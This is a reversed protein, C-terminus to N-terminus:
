LFYAVICAAYRTPVGSGWSSLWQSSWCLVDQRWDSSCSCSWSCSCVKGMLKADEDAFKKAWRLVGAFIFHQLQFYLSKLECICGLYQLDRVHITVNNQNDEATSLVTCYVLWSGLLALCSWIVRSMHVAGLPPIEGCVQFLPQSRRQESVCMGQPSSTSPFIQQKLELRVQDTQSIEISTCRHLRVVNYTHVVYINRHHVVQTDWVVVVVFDKNPFPIIDTNLSLDPYATFYTGSGEHYGEPESVYKVTYGEERGLVSVTNAWNLLCYEDRKLLQYHEMNLKKHFTQLHTMRSFQWMVKFTPLYCRMWKWKIVPCHLYLGIMQESHCRFWPTVLNRVFLVSWQVPAPFLKAMKWAIFPM